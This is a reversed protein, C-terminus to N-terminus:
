TNKITDFQLDPAPLRQGADKQRGIWFYNHGGSDVASRFIRRVRMGTRPVEEENLRWSEKVIQSKYQPALRSASELTRGRRLYIQGDTVGNGIQRPVYPIWYAPMPTMLQYRGATGNVSPASPLTSAPTGGHRVVNGDPARYLTEVAWTLNAEEDRVFRTEEIEDNHLLNTAINPVFFFRGDLGSANSGSGALTFLSWDSDPGANAASGLTTVVDFSDTVTVSTIERLTGAPQPLPAVYWNNMDVYFFEPLLLSLVNPEPDKPTDFDANSDEFEWWRPDPAGKFHLATPTVRMRDTPPLSAGAAAAALDFNYWDLGHGAYESCVLSHSATKLTFGYELAASNWASASGDGGEHEAAYELPVAADFNEETQNRVISQCAHLRWEVDIAVLRGGNEAEFEGSQWQRALFWAPDSIRAELAAGISVSVNTAHLQQASDGTPPTPPGTQTTTKM